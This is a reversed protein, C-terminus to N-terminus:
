KKEKLQYYYKEPHDLKEKCESYGNDYPNHPHSDDHLNLYKEYDQRYASENFEFMHNFIACLMLRDIAKNEDEIDANIKIYNDISYSYDRPYSSEIESIDEGDREAKVITQYVEFSESSKQFQVEDKENYYEAVMDESNYIIDHFYSQMITDVFCKAVPEPLEYDLKDTDPNVSAMKYKKITRQFQKECNNYNTASIDSIKNENMSHFFEPNIHYSLEAYEIM